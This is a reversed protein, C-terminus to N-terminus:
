NTEKCINLLIEKELGLIAAMAGPNKKAEDEMLEARKKVLVLADLFALSGAAVLAPYEGLSLGAVFKPSDKIKKRFVELIAISTTLIAPQCNQTRTLEEQPGQFCIKSLSFGLIKDSSDFIDKSESFNQYFDKGMGVYQAGQGPFIFGVM